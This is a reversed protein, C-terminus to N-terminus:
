LKPLAVEEVTINRICLTGTYPLVTRSFSRNWDGVKVQSKGEWIYIYHVNVMEHFSANPIKIIKSKVLTDYIIDHKVFM